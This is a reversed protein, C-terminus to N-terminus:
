LVQFARARSQSSSTYTLNISNGEGLNLVTNQLYLPRDYGVILKQDNDDILLAITPSLAVYGASSIVFEKIQNILFTTLKPITFNITKIYNKGNKNLVYEENFSINDGLNAIENLKIQQSGITIINNIYDWAEIGIISDTSGSITQYEIPYSIPNGDVLRSGVYITRINNNDFYCNDLINIAM